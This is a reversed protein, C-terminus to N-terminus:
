KQERLEKYTESFLKYAYQREEESDLNKLIDKGGENVIKSSYISSSGDEDDIAYYFYETNNDLSKIKTVFIAEKTSGDTLEIQFKESNM